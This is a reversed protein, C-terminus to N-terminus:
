VQVGAPATSVSDILSDVNALEDDDDALFDAVKRAVGSRHVGDILKGCVIM